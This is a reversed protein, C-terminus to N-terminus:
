TTIRQALRVGQPEQEDQLRKTLDWLRWGEEPPLEKVEPKPLTPATSAGEGWEIPPLTHGNSAARM